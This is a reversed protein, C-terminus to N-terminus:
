KKMVRCSVGEMLWTATVNAVVKVPQEKMVSRTKQCSLSKDDVVREKMGWQALRRYFYYPMLIKEVSRQTDVGIRSGNYRPNQQHEQIMVGVLRQTTATEQTPLWADKWCRLSFVVVKKTTSLTSDTVTDRDMWSVVLHGTPPKRVVFWLLDHLIDITGVAVVVVLELIFIPPVRSDRPQCETEYKQSWRQSTPTCIRPESRFM